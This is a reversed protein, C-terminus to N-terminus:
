KGQLDPFDEGEAATRQEPTKYGFFFNMWIMRSLRYNIPLTLVLAAGITGFYIWERHWDVFPFLATFVTIAVAVTLAYSVYSAGFYFGPEPSFNLGCQNCKSHMTATDKLRYPNNFLFVPGEHCRPCKQHFVSYLKSGKIM